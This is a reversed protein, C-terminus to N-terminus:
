KNLEKVMIHNLPNDMIIGQQLMWPNEQRWNVDRKIIKAPIGAIVVNNEEYKKNIISRAGLICNDGVYSNKLVMVETSIWCHNGIKIEDATTTLVETGDKNTMSHGDSTRFLVKSSFLCNEGITIKGQEELIFHAQVICTNSGMKFKQGRGMM